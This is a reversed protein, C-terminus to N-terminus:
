DCLPPVIRMTFRTITMPPPVVFMPDLAPDAPLVPTSCIFRRASSPRTVDPRMDFRPAVTAAPVQEGFLRSFPKESLAPALQRTAAQLPSGSTTQASVGDAGAIAATLIATAVLKPHHRM